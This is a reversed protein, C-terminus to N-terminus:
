NGAGKGCAILRAPIIEQEADRAQLAGAAHSFRDLEEARRSSRAFWVEEV